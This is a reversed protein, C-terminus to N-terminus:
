RIEYRPMRQVRHQAKKARRKDERLLRSTCDELGWLEFGTKKQVRTAKYEREMAADESIMANALMVFLLIFVGAIVLLIVTVVGYFIDNIM